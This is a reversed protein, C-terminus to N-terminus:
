ACARMVEPGKAKACVYYYWRTCLPKSKQPYNEPVERLREFHLSALEATVKDPLAYYMLMGGHTPELLYGEGRWFTM